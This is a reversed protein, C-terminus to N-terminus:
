DNRCPAAALGSLGLPVSLGEIAIAESSRRVSEDDAYVLEDDPDKGHGQHYSRLAEAGFVVDRALGPDLVYLSGDCASLALDTPYTKRRGDSGSIIGERAGDYDPLPVSPGESTTLSGDADMTLVSVDGGMTNSVFLFGSDDQSAVIRGPNIMLTEDGPPAATDSVQTFLQHSSRSSSSNSSSADMIRFSSVGGGGFFVGKRSLPETVALYHAGENIGNRISGLVAFSSITAETIGRLASSAFRRLPLHRPGTLEDDVIPYVFLGATKSGVVLADGSPTFEVQTATSLDAIPGNLSPDEADGGPSGLFFGDGYRGPQVIRQIPQSRDSRGEFATDRVLYLLLSTGSDNDDRHTTDNHGVDDDAEGADSSPNTMRSSSSSSRENAIVLILFCELYSGKGAIGLPGDASLVCLRDGRAAMSVPFVGITSTVRLLRLGGPSVSAGDGDRSIVFVSVSNSGANVAAVLDMEEGGSSPAATTVTHQILSNSSGLAAVPGPVSTPYGSGGTSYSGILEIGNGSASVSSSSTAGGNGRITDNAPRKDLHRRFAYVRNDGLQNSMTYFLDTQPPRTQEEQPMAEPLAEAAAPDDTMTSLEALIDGAATMSPTGSSIAPSSIPANGPPPAEDHCDWRREIVFAAILACACLLLAASALAAMLRCRHGRKSSPKRFSQHCSGSAATEDDPLITLTSSLSTLTGGDETVGIDAIDLQKQETTKLPVKASTEAAGYSYVNNERADDAKLSRASIAEDGPGEMRCDSRCTM